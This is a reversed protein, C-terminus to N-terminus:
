FGAFNRESLRLLRSAFSSMVLYVRRILTRILINVSEHYSISVGINVISAKNIGFVSREKSSIASSIAASYVQIFHLVYIDDLDCVCVKGANQATKTSVISECCCSVDFKENSSVLTHFEM